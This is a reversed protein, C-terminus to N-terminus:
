PILAAIAEFSVAAASYTWFKEIQIAGVFGMGPNITLGYGTGKTAAKEEFFVELDTTASLNNIQFSTTQGKVDWRELSAM